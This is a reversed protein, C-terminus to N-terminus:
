SDMQRWEGLMSTVIIAPMDLMKQPHQPDSILCEHKRPPRKELQAM